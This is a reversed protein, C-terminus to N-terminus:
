RLEIAPPTPPKFLCCKKYKRGSGCPCPSNRGPAAETKVYPTNGTAPIWDDMPRDYGDDGSDTFGAWSSLEAATDHFPQLNDLVWEPQTGDIAEKLSREFDAYKASWPDVFGASFAREAFSRLNSLGLDAIAGQWGGWVPHESQPRLGVFCDLLFAETDPRPIESRLTLIALTDFMCSRVFEDAQEDLIIGHLPQPDGDFVSAMVRSATETTADGLLYELDEPPCRLLQCLPRYARKERWEGLLHFGLMLPSPRDRTDSDGAVFSDIEQLFIPVLEDRREQAARVAEHPFREDHTLSWVIDQIEM